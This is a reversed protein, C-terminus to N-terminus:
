FSKMEEALSSSTSVRLGVYKGEENKRYRARIRRELHRSSPVLRLEGRSDAWERWAFWLEQVSASYSPDLDCHTAIFDSLLDMDKRYETIAGAVAAPASLGIRQYELAGKVCWALVAPLNACLKEERSADKAIFLSADFNVTFPVPLLRRWIGYDEGTIIPKHNTPMICLWTPRIEISAKEFLGRAPIPEGGTMSKVVDERLISGENAETVYVLRSNRLRLLDERPGSAGSSPGGGYSVFTSASSMRGYDGFAARIVNFVTSKGNCGMGYPIALVDEKPDGLLAYGILRQLFSVLGADGEFVDQLTADWLASDADPLYEVNCNMTLRHKKDAPLLRGTELDVVGNAVGLLMKNRDLAEARVTIGESLTALKVMAQVMQASQSAHAFKEVEKRADANAISAAEKSIELTTEFALREIEVDSAKVWKNDHVWKFWGLGIAYMLSAGYRDLMRACNGAQNYTHSVRKAADAIIATDEKKEGRAAMATRTNQLSLKTGTLQEFRTRLLGEIRIQLSLDQRAMTGARAAVDNLLEDPYKCKEIAEKARDFSELNGDRIAEKKGADAQARLWVGTIRRTDREFSVWRKQLDEYGVYSDAQRSWEDWMELGAADGKSECHLALGVKIWTDYDDAGPIFELMGRMQSQSLGLPQEGFLSDLAQAQAPAAAKAPTSGNAYVVYGESKCLREFEALAAQVQQQTILPLSAAPLHEIGGAIDVWEYPKKTDPHIAYAVFQQGAGLIELRHKATSGPKVFWAGTRKQWGEASRYVLLTKPARGIREASSGLHKLCWSVFPKSVRTDDIDVDIAVVPYQGQGCLIGVGSSAYESVESVTLRAKEWESIAPRKQGPIIPVVLYGNGILAAASRGFEGSM